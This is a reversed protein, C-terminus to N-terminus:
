WFNIIITSSDHSIVAKMAKILCDLWFSDENNIHYQELLKELYPHLSPEALYDAAELECAM